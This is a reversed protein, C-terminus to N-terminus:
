EGDDCYIMWRGDTMWESMMCEVWDCMMLILWGVLWGILVICYLVIFLVCCVDVVCLM